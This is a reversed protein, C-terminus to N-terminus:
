LPLNSNLEEYNIKFTHRFSDEWNIFSSFFGSKREKDIQLKLSFSNAKLLKPM